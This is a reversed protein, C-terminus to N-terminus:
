GNPHLPLQLFSHKKVFLQSKLDGAAAFCVSQDPEVEKKTVSKIIFYNGLLNSM